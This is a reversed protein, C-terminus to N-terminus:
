CHGSRLLLALFEGANCTSGPKYRQMELPKSECDKAGVYYGLQVVNAIVAYHQIM